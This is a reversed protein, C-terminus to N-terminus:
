EPHNYFIHSSYAAETGFRKKCFPCPYKSGSCQNKKHFYLNSKNAFPKSCSLCRYCKGDGDLMSPISNQQQQQQKNESMSKITLNPNNKVLKMINPDLGSKHSSNPIPTISVAGISSPYNNPQEHIEVIPEMPEQKIKVDNMYKAFSPINQRDVINLVKKAVNEQKPKVINLSKRSLSNLQQIAAKHIRMHSNRSHVTPFCSSCMACEYGRSSKVAPFKKIQTLPVEIEEVPDDAYTGIERVCNRMPRGTPSFKEPERDVYKPTREVNQPPYKPISPSVNKFATGKCNVVHINFEDLKFFVQYCKRCFYAQSQPKGGQLEETPSETGPERKIEIKPIKREFLQKMKLPRVKPTYPTRTVPPPRAKMKTESIVKPTSQFKRSAFIKTTHSDGALIHQKVHADFEHRQKNFRVGCFRCTYHCATSFYHSEIAWNDKFTYRCLPCFKRKVSNVTVSVYLTRRDDKSIEALAVGNVTAKTDILVVEGKLANTDRPVLLDQHDNNAEEPDRFQVDEPNIVNVRGTSDEFNEQERKIIIDDDSENENEEYKISNYWKNRVYANHRRGHWLKPKDVKEGLVVYMHTCEHRALAKVSMFLQDCYNCINEEELAVDGGNLFAENTEIKTYHECQYDPINRKNICNLVCNMLSLPNYKIVVNKRCEQEHYLRIYNDKRQKIRSKPGIFRRRKVVPSIPAKDGLFRKGTIKATRIRPTQESDSDGMETDSQSEANHSLSFPSDTGQTDKNQSSSQSDDDQSESYGNLLKTQEIRNEQIKSKRLSDQIAQQLEDCLETENHIPNFGDNIKGKTLHNQELANLFLQVSVNESNCEILKEKQRELTENSIRRLSSFNALNTYCDECIQKSLPDTRYILLKLFEKILQLIQQGEPVREFVSHMIPSTEECLRCANDQIESNQGM